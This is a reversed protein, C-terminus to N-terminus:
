TRKALTNKWQALCELQGSDGAPIAVLTDAMFGLESALTACRESNVVLPTMFMASQHSVCLQCLNSLIEDSTVSIIDPRAPRFVSDILQPNLTPIVRDYVDITDVQWSAASLHTQILNRGGLGKIILLSAPTRQELQAIYAESNFPSQPQLAVAQGHAQLCNATAAGIAHVLIEPWPLPALAHAHRVANASTFLVAEHAARKQLLIQTEVPRAIIKLCPLHSVHYGLQQCRIVFNEQQGAPRTILIRPMSASSM